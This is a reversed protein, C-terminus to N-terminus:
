AGDKKVSDQKNELHLVALIQHKKLSCVLSLHNYATSQFMMHHDPLFVNLYMAEDM